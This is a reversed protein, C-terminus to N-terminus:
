CFKTRVHQGPLKEFGLTYSPGVFKCVFAIRKSMNLAMHNASSLKMLVFSRMNHGETVRTRADMHAKGFHIIQRLHSSNKAWNIVQVTLDVDIPWKLSSDYEGELLRVHASMNGEGQDEETDGAPGVELRMKYGKRHTYFPPSYFTSDNAISRIGTITFAILMHSSTDSKQEALKTSQVDITYQISKCQFCACAYM